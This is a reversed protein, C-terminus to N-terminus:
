KGEAKQITEELFLISWIINDKDAYFTIDDLTDKVSQLYSAKNKVEKNLHETNQSSEPIGMQKLTAGPKSKLAIYPVIETIISVREMYIQVLETKGLGKLEDVTHTKTLIANPSVYTNGSAGAVGKDKQAFASMSVASLGILMSFVLLYKKM